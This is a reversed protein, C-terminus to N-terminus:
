YDIHNGIKINNKNVFGAPVELVYKAPIKSTFLTPYTEPMVNLTLDAVKSNDDIWIIDISFKMDKMWFNYFGPEDFIFFLGENDALGERGSLGLEREKVSDAIQINVETDNIKLTDPEGGEEFLVWVGFLVLVAITLKKLM